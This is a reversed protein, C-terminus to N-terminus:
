RKGSGYRGLTQMMDSQGSRPPLNRQTKPLSNQAHGKDKLLGIEVVRILAM